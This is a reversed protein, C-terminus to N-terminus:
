CQLRQCLLKGFCHSSASVGQVPAFLCVATAIAVMLIIINTFRSM